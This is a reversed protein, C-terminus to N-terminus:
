PGLVLRFGIASSASDPLFRSRAASRCASAEALYHGGRIVKETGNAPGIPDKVPKAPYPGYWDRCWEALNGHLDFLGWANAKLSAAPLLQRRDEKFAKRCDAPVADASGYNADDTSLCNGFAFPTTTAARCAYEWQAESPLDYARGEKKGLWKAFAMADNWSICAVPASARTVQQGWQSVLKLSVM